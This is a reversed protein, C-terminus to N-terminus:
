EPVPFFVEYPGTFRRLFRRNLGEGSDEDPESSLQSGYAAIAAQKREVYGATCVLEPRPTRRLMRLLRAPRDWQWVPYALLRVGTGALARRAASGLAAHDDHPDLESTVLVEAPAVARVADRLAAVLAPDSGDLEADVFALATVAEPALGLLGTAARLERAREAKVAAPDGPPWKSGDSAVLVHVPTGAELKRMITVAAGLTEDDPHPAMVLCSRRSCADTVDHGARAIARALVSAITPYTPELARGALQRM